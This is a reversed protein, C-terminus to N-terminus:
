SLLSDHRSFDEASRRPEVVIDVPVGGAGLPHGGGLDAGEEGHGAPGFHDREGTAHGVDRAEREVDDAPRDVLEHLVVARRRHLVAGALTHGRQALLDAVHHLQLADVRVRVVDDDGDPRLLGDVQDCADEAVGAVHHDALGRRVDTRQPHEAGELAVDDV